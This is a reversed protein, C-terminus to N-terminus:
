AEVPEALVALMTEWRDAAAAWSNGYSRAYNRMYHRASNQKLVDWNVGLQDAWKTLGALRELVNPPTWDDIFCMGEHIREPLAGVPRTVPICGYAQAELANICFTEMWDSGDPQMSPYLWFQARAYAEALQKQGVRGRLYVGPQRALRSVDQLFRKREPRMRGAAQLYNFGYFVELEADPWMDRIEPWLRLLEDLGRDASSSYIFRHPEHAEEVDYLTIGNGAVVLKSEDFWPYTELWHKRHWESMVVVRDIRGAVEPTFLDGYSTDHCWLIVTKANPRTELMWPQRSIVLVDREDGADFKDHKRYVVGNHVGDEMAFVSVFHGRAALAEALKAAATESGGLGGEIISRPTWHEFGEGLYFAIGLGNPRNRDFEFLRNGFGPSDMFAGPDEVKHCNVIRRAPDSLLLEEMDRQDFEFVHWRPRRDDFIGDGYALFEAPSSGLVVPAIGEALQLMEIQKSPPLHELIEALLVADFTRGDAVIDRLEKSEFALNDMGKSLEHAKRVAHPNIDIGTVHIGAQALVRSVDGNHCGVELVTKCGRAKLREAYWQVRPLVSLDGTIEVDDGQEYAAPEYAPRLIHQLWARLKVIKPDERITQPLLYDVFQKARITDARRVLHDVISYVAAVSREARVAEEYYRVQERWTVTPQVAYAKQCAELAARFEGRRAHIRHEIDWLNVTYDLPNRFVSLPADDKGEMSQLWSAAAEVDEDTWYAAHALFLYPDKLVPTVAIAAMSWSQVGLWDRRMFSCRAAMMAANWQNLDDEPRELYLEYYRQAADYEALSFYAHGVHLLTRPKPEEKLMELLIPLNRESSGSSERRHIVKCRDSFGIVHPQESHCTEHVRDEWRWALSTRMIRERQHQVTVNGHEDHDYDYVFDCRGLGERDMYDMIQSLREPNTLEDDGDLWMWFEGTVHKLALNRARAWDKHGDWDWDVPVVKDAYKRAIRETKGHDTAKGGLVIIIEQVHPAVSKLLPELTDACDRVVMTLSLRVPGKGNKM